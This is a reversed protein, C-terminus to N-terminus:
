YRMKPSEYSPDVHSAEEMPQDPDITEQEKAEVAAEVPSCMCSM